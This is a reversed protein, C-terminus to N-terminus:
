QKNPRGCKPSVMRVEESYEFVFFFNANLCCCYGMILHLKYFSTATKLIEAFIAFLTKAYRYTNFVTVGYNNPSFFMGLRISSLCKKVSLTFFHPM